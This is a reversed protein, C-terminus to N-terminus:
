VGMRRMWELLWGLGAIRILNRRFLPWLSRVVQLRYWWVARRIGQTQVVGWFQEELDGVIADHTERPASLQLLYQFNQPPSLKGRSREALELVTKLTDVKLLRVTPSDSKNISISDWNEALFANMEESIYPLDDRKM